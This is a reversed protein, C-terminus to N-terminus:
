NYASEQAVSRLESRSLGLDRLERDTLANLGDFTERYMRYQKYRTVLTEVASSIGTVFSTSAASASNVYAM